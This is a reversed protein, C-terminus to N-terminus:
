VWSWFLKPIHHKVLWRTFDGDSSFREKILWLLVTDRYDEGITRFSEGPICKANLWNKLDSKTDFQEKVLLRLVKKKYKKKVIWWYEYDDDGWFEQPTEGLDYGELVLNGNDDIVADLWSLDKETEHRYLTIRKIRSDEMYRGVALLSIYIEYKSHM